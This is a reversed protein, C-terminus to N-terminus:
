NQNGLVLGANLDAVQKGYTHRNLLIFRITGLPYQQLTRIDSKTKGRNCFRPTNTHNSFM